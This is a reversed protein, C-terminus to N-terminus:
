RCDPKVGSAYDGLTDFDRLTMERAIYGKNLGNGKYFVLFYSHNKRAHIQTKHRMAPNGKQILVFLDVCEFGLTEIERILEIHNWYQKGCEIEDQCKVILVGNDKLVRYAEKCGEIYLRRIANRGSISNLNYQNTISPKMGTPSSHAYPPDIVLSDITSDQYPLNSLNIGMKIDSAKLIYNGNHIKKWFGGKGYTVDAVVSGKPVYLKLIKPFLDANNGVM